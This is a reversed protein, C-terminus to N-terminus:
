VTKRALMYYYYCVTLFFIFNEFLFFFFKKKFYYFLYRCTVGGIFGRMNRERSRICKRRIFAWVVAVEVVVVRGIWTLLVGEQM